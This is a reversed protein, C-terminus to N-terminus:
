ITIIESCIFLFLATFNNFNDAMEALTTSVVLVARFHVNRAAGNQRLADCLCM